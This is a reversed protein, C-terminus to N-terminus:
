RVNDSVGTIGEVVGKGDRDGGVGHGFFFRLWGGSFGGVCLVEGLHGSALFTRPQLETTSHESQM